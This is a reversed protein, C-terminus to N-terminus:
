RDHWTAQPGVCRGARLQQNCTQAAGANAEGPDRAGCTAGVIVTEHGRLRGTYLAGYGGGACSIIVKCKRGSRRMCGKLAREKAEQESPAGYAYEYILRKSDFAVASAASAEAAQLWILISTLGIKLRM